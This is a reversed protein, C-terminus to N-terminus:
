IKSLLTLSRKAKEQIISSSLEMLELISSNQRGQMLKNLEMKEKGVEEIHVQSWKLFLKKISSSVSLIWNNEYILCDIFVEKNPFDWLLSIETPIILILQDLLLEHARLYEQIKKEIDLILVYTTGEQDIDNRLLQQLESMQQLFSEKMKWYSLITYETEESVNYATPNNEKCNKLSLILKELPNM